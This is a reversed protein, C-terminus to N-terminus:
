SEIPIHILTLLDEPRTDRPSNIYQEFGPVDRLEHGSTLLWTGYIHQYTSSLRDHPGRHTAVAYSGGALEMVGFEGEPAVPRSVAVAADYRTKEEPTIGPDDHVIGFMRMDPGLLGRRGAWAMLRGWTAGVQDYPGVHRLFVVRVPALEKM